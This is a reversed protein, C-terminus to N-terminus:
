TTAGMPRFPEPDDRKNKRLAPLTKEATKVIDVPSSSAKSMFATAGAGLAAKEYDTTDYNSIVVIAIEPFAKNIKQTLQIGNEEPLGIDMFILEPTKMKIASFAERGNAAESVTVSPFSNMLIRVLTERFVISDEVILVNPM